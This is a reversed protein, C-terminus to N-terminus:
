GAHKKLYEVITKEDRAPLPPLGRQRRLLAMRGMQMEWMAPKLMHPPYAVHCIGCERAYLRAPPSDPEPLSPSCGAALLLTVLAPVALAFAWMAGIRDAGVVVSGQGDIGIIGRSM